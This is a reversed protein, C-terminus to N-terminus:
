NQLTVRLIYFSSLTLNNERIRWLALLLLTSTSVMKKKQMSLLDHLKKAEQPNDVDFVYTRLGTQSFVVLPVGGELLGFHSIEEWSVCWPDRSRKDIAWLCQESAIILHSQINIHGLYVDDSLIYFLTSLRHPSRILAIV